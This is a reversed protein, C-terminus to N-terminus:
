VQLGKTFITEYELNTSKLVTFDQSATGLYVGITRPILLGSKEADAYQNNEKDGVIEIFNYFFNRNSSNDFWLMIIQYMSGVILLTLYLSKFRYRKM